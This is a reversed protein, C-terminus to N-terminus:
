VFVWEPKGKAKVIEERRTDKKVRNEKYSRFGILDDLSSYFSDAFYSVEYGLDDGPTLMLHIRGRLRAGANPHACIVRSRDYYSKLRLLYNPTYSVIFDKTILEQVENEFGIYEMRQTKLNLYICVNSNWIRILLGEKWAGVVHLINTSSDHGRCFGKVKDRLVITDFKYDLSWEGRAKDRLTWLGVYEDSSFDVIALNERLNTLRFLQVLTKDSITATWYVYGSITVTSSSFCVNGLPLVSASTSIDLSRWKSYAGRLDFVEAVLEQEQTQWVSIVKHTKGKPDYGFGLPQKWSSEDEQEPIKMVEKRIPNFVYPSASGCRALILGNSSVPHFYSQMQLCPYDWLYRDEVRLVNAEDNEEALRTNCMWMKYFMEGGHTGFTLLAPPEGGDDDHLHREIFCHSDIVNLFTKSVCRCIMAQKGQLKMLIEM